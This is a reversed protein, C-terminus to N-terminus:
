EPAGDSDKQSENLAFILADATNIAFNAIGQHTDIAKSKHATNDIFKLLAENGICGEMAMAAFYERKTLGHFHGITENEKRARFEEFTPNAPDNPNTM